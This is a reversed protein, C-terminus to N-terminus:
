DRLQRVMAKVLGPGAYILGTYVQVLAAGADLMGRAEEAGMVGGVGVVPLRGQTLRVIQRVMAVSQGYLPAGSLGGGEGARPSRLGQRLLTTNTAIVGDMGSSQVAALADELEPEDLDPSLKVLVPVARGLKQVQVRREAALAGLLAELQARGQLRRLGATNPSSVNVALYDALPAFTRMLGLYDQAAEELPTDKNKGMNVGLVLGAPRKAMLRRAVFDAGKGPFGMRNIVAQDEPLRYLRPRPNGEQPRLTVTGIEIHGFGLGALGRWGLGDKDYGAALGIPNAFDLGFARVPRGPVAFWARVLGRGLATMGALRVAQLTLGHALEPELCFLCKRILPYLNM